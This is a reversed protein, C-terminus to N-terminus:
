GLRALTTHEAISEPIIKSLLLESVQENPAGLNSMRYVVSNLKSKLAEYNNALGEFWWTSQM